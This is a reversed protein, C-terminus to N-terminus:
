EHRHGPAHPAERHRVESAAGAVAPRVAARATIRLGDAFRLTLPVPTEPTLVQRLGILMVHPGGPRLVETGGPPVPLGAALPRMRMVGGADEVVEHLETAAAAPSAAGVLRLPHPSRNELVFYAAAPGAGAPPPRVWLDRVWIGLARAEDLSVAGRRDPAAEPAPVPGAAVALVLGAAPAWGRVGRIVAARGGPRLGDVPAGSPGDPRAASRDFCAPAPSWAIM